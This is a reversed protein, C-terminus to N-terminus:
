FKLHKLTLGQNVLQKLSNIGIRLHDDVFAADVVADSEATKVGDPL